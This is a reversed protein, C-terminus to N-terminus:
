LGPGGMNRSFLGESNGPIVNKKKKNREEESLQAFRRKKSQNSELRLSNDAVTAAM